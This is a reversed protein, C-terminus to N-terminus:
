NIQNRNRDMKRVASESWLNLSFKWCKKLNLERDIQSSRIMMPHMYARFIITGNFHSSNSSECVCVAVDISDMLGLETRPGSVDAFLHYLRSADNKIQQYLMESINCVLITLVGFIM